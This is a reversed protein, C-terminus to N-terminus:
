LARSRMERCQRASRSAAFPVMGVSRSRAWAAAVRTRHPQGFHRGSTPRRAQVDGANVV